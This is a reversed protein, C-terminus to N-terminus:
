SIYKLWVYRSVNYNVIKLKFFCIERASYLFYRLFIILISHIGHFLMWLVVVCEANYKSFVLDKWVVRASVNEALSYLYSDLVFHWLWCWFYDVWGILCIMFVVVLLINPGVNMYIILNSMLSLRVLSMSRVFKGKTMSPLVQDHCKFM